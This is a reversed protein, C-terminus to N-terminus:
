FRLLVFLTVKPCCNIIIKTGIGGRVLPFLEVCHLSVAELNNGERRPEKLIPSLLSMKVGPPGVGRLSIRHRRLRYRGTFEQQKWTAERENDARVLKWHEYFENYKRNVTSECVALFHEHHSLVTQRHPQSSRM